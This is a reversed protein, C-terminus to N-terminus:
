DANLGQIQWDTTVFGLSGGGSVSTGNMLWMVGQGSATNRWLIDYKGDGNYDGTQAVIWPSAASGPSGGGIVSTGDLLWLVAQGSTTNYWLLDSKGDGNFDGVGGVTWPSAASGPSGGGVVSTGNLLWIVAQGTSTNYWLIDGFGDGNFDATGAVAWTGSVSGPSGGGIVTSGNLFWILAQGTTGNRWLIDAFGDGNFDRQGVIAWPSPASGPSGGGIVSAGNVLWVVAQGGTTNYWLIDGKCNGDFDHAAASVVQTMSASSPDFTSTGNYTVTVRHPGSRLNPYLFSSQGSGGVLSTIPLEPDVTITITGDTIRTTSNAVTVIVVFTVSQGCASPDKSSTVTTTTAVTVAQASDVNGLMSSCAAIAVMVAFRSPLCVVERARMWLQRAVTNTRQRQGLSSATAFLAFVPLLAAIYRKRADHRM